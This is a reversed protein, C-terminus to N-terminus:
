RDVKGMSPRDDFSAYKEPDQAYHLLFMVCCMAHALHHLGSEKDLDEGSWWALLHRLAAGYYRGWDVGREWNRPEYKKAGHSMVQGSALLAGPSFLDMRPKENDFKVGKNHKDSSGM